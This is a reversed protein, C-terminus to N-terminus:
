SKAEPSRKVVCGKSACEACGALAWGKSFRDISLRSEQTAAVTASTM